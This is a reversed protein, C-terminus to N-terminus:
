FNRLFDLNKFHDSINRGLDKELLSKLIILVYFLFFYIFAQTVHFIRVDHAFSARSNEDYRYAAGGKSRALARM